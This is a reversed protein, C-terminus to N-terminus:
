IISYLISIYLLYLIILIYFNRDIEATGATGPCKGGYFRAFVTTGGGRLADLWGARFGRRACLEHTSPRRADGM